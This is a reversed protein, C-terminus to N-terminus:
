ALTFYLKCWVDQASLNETTVVQVAITAGAAINTTTATLARCSQATGTGAITCTVAPTTAAAASRLAVVVDATPDSSIACFLGHVKFAPFYTAIPEDATTETTSEPIANCATGGMTLDVAGGSLYAAAAPGIYGTTNNFSDGCLIIQDMALAGVNSNTLTGTAIQGGTIGATASLDTTTLSGDEVDDTGVTGDLIEGTGISDTPLIIETGGTGDTVFTISDTTSDGITCGGTGCVVAGSSANLTGTVRLDSVTACTGAALPFCASWDAPAAAVVGAVVLSALFGVLHLRRM